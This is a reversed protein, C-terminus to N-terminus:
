RSCVCLFVLAPIKQLTGILAMTETPTLVSYCNGYSILILKDSGKAAGGACFITESSCKSETLTLIIIFLKM